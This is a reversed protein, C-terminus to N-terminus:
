KDMFRTLLAQKQRKGLGQVRRSENIGIEQMIKDAKVKGV